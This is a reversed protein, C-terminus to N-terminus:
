EVRSPACAPLANLDGTEVYNLTNEGTNHQKETLM